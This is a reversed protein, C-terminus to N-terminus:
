DKEKFADLWLKDLEAESYLVGNKRKGVAQMKETFAKTRPEYARATDNGYWHEDVIAEQNAARLIAKTEEYTPQRNPHQAQWQMSLSKVTGDYAAALEKNKFGKPPMAQKVLDPDLVLPPIGKSLEEQAKLLYDVHTRGLDPIMGMLEEKSRNRLGKTDQIIANFIAKAGPSSYKRREEREPTNLRYEEESRAFSVRSRYEAAASRADALDQRVDMDFDKMVAAQADPSLKAYEASKMVKPIAQRNDGLDRYLLMVRGINERDEKVKAQLVNGFIVQAAQYAEAGHTKAKKAMELEVTTLPVGAALAASAEAALEEGRMFANGTKLRASIRNNQEQSLLRSSAAYVTNATSIDEDALAKEIIASYFDGNVKKHYAAAIAPDSMGQKVGWKVIEENLQANATAVAAPNAYQGTATDTLVKVRSEHQVGEFREAEGMAYGVRNADFGVSRRKATTEFRNRQSPTSLGRSIDEKYSNYKDQFSKHFDPKLVGEGKVSKYEEQLELEKQMLKTEADDAMIADLRETEAKALASIKNGLQINADAEIGPQYGAVTRSPRVQVRQMEEPNPLTAM